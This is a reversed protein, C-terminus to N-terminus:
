TNLKIFSMNQCLEYKYVILIFILTLVLLFCKRFKGGYYLLSIVFDKM